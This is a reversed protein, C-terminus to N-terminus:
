TGPTITDMVEQEAVLIERGNVNVGIRNVRKGNNFPTQAVVNSIGQDVRLSDRIETLLPKAMDHVQMIRDPIQGSVADHINNLALSQVNAFYYVIGELLPLYTRLTDVVGAPGILAIATFRTNEEVRGMDKGEGTILNSLFQDFMGTVGGFLGAGANAVLGGVNPGGGGLGTFSLIKELLSPAKAEIAGLAGGLTGTMTVIAAVIQKTNDHVAVLVDNVSSHIDLLRDTATTDFHGVRTIISSLLSQAEPSGEGLTLTVNVFNKAVDRIERLTPVVLTLLASHIDQLKPIYENLKHLINEAHIMGYRTNQEISNLTGEQRIDYIASVVSAIATVVGTIANVVDTFGSVAQGIGGGPTGPGPTSPADGGPTPLPAPVSPPTITSSGIGFIKGLTSLIDDLVKGFDDKFRKILWGIVAESGLRLAAEIAGEFVSKFLTALRDLPGQLKSELDEIQRIAENKFEEYEAAKDAQTKAVKALEEDQQKIISEQLAALKTDTDEAFKEYAKKREEISGLVKAEEKEIRANSETVLEDEKKATDERLQLIADTRKRVSEELRDLADQEKRKSSDIAEQQREANEALFERYDRARRELETRIDQTQREARRKADSIAEAEDDGIKKIKAKHDEEERRIQKRIEAERVKDKRRIADALDEQLDEMKRSHRKNEQERDENADTQIDSVSEALDEGIRSLAKNADIVYDEYAQVGDRLSDQLDNLTGALQRATEERIEQQTQGVEALFEQYEGEEKALHEALEQLETALRQAEETKFADLEALSETVFVEYEALREALAERLQQTEEALQTAYKERVAENQADIDQNFQTYDQERQALEDQIDRTQQRLGENFSDDFFGKIFETFANAVDKALDNIITSVQKTFNRWSSEQNGLARDLAEKSRELQDLESQHVADGKSRALEIEAERMKIWQELAATSNEGADKKVQEWAARNADSVKKLEAPTKLGAEHYIDVVKQVDKVAQLIGEPLRKNLPVIIKVADDAAEKMKQYAKSYDIALDTVSKALQNNIEKLKEPAEKLFKINEEHAKQIQELAEGHRKAAKEPEARDQAETMKFYANGLQEMSIKGKDYLRLAEQYEQTAAKMAAKLDKTRDELSKAAKGGASMRARMQEISGSYRGAEGSASDMIAAARATANNFATTTDELKAQAEAVSAYSGKGQEFAKNAEDVATRAALMAKRTSDVQKNAEALREKSAALEQNLAAKKARLDEAAATLQALSTKGDMTSQKLKDLTESATKVAERANRIGGGFADINYVAARLADLYEKVSKGASDVVVQQAGIQKNHNSLASELLRIEDAQEKTAVKGAKILSQFRELEANIAILDTIVKYLIMGGIAAGFAIALPTAAALIAALGGSGFGLATALAGAAPALSGLTSIIGSLALLVPGVAAALATIAVITTQIYPPAEAFAEAMGRLTNLLPMAVESIVMNAFPLLVKGIDALTFTIQDKFNSFQGAATTAQKSMLNGFKETMGELIAPVATAADIAGKSALKMAEPVSVGITKALTEWAPIGAEALQRMEEASVKGKARMQGLALTVRDILAAGGGLGAVADGVSRMIPITDEAAFGLAQLRKAANLLDPFEFPTKAAFDKLETLFQSADRASGLMTTFAIEAQQFNSALGLADSALKVIPATLAASLALGLRAAVGAIDNLRNGLEQMPSINFQQSAAAQVEQLNAELKDYAANIRNIAAETDGYDIIDWIRKLELMEAKNKGAADAQRELSKIYGKAANDLGVLSSAQTQFSQAMGEVTKVAKDVGSVLETANMQLNAVLDALTVAM